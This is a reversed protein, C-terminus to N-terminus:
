QCQGKLLVLTQVIDPKLKPISDSNFIFVYFIMTGSVHLTRMLMHFCDKVNLLVIAYFGRM